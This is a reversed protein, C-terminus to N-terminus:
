WFWPSVGKAFDRNKSKKLKRIKCDLFTKKREPIIIMFCMKSASKALFLFM